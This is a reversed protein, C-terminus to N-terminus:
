GGCSNTPMEVGGGSSGGDDSDTETDGGDDVTIGKYALDENIVANASSAYANVIARPDVNAPDSATRFMSWESKDTRWPSDWPLITNGNSDVANSMSHWEYMAGDYFRTPLGLIAASAFGTVMARYTTECYTYITDGEQYARGAGVGQLTGDVFQNGGADAEGDLYAQIEAKPKYTWGASGDAINGYSLLLAGNPHGQTAGGNRFDTDDDPSYEDGRDVPDSTPLNNGRADWIFVGDNLLNADQSPAANMMDELTAQLAFNIEPLDKVSATGNMPPTSGAAAFYGAGLTTNEGNWQNGGDLVALHEKPTGWYRFMYWCRGARMANGAGATGQACVIMDRAPDIGYKALFTDMSRGSPVMRVTEIVGNSRPEDWESATYTFVNSGNPAIFEYGAEGSGTQLIVLKGEIGAPKNAEWNDIWGKLTNGTILGNVNNDYNDDSEQAITAPTAQVVEETTESTYTEDESGGCASLGMALTLSLGIAPIRYRGFQSSIQNRMM